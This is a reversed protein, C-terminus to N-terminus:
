PELYRGKIVSVIQRGCGYWGEGYNSKLKNRPSLNVQPHLLEWGNLVSEASFELWSDSLALWRQLWFHTRFPALTDLVSNCHKKSEMDKQQKAWKMRPVNVKWKKKLQVFIPRLLNLRTMLIIIKESETFTFFSFLPNLFSHILWPKLKKQFGM